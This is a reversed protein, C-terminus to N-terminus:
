VLKAINKISTGFRKKYLKTFFVEDCFGVEEAVRGINRYLLYLREAEAFRLENRYNIPSMGITERFIKRFYSESLNCKEAYSQIPLNEKYTISFYDLAPKLIEKMQNDNEYALHSILELM